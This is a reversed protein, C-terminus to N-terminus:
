RQWTIMGYVGRAVETSVATSQALESFEPHHSDLLNQGVLALEAYASPRWALRADMTIYAPVARSAVENPLQDVYRGIVDLDVNQTLDWSSRLYIQNRPTSHVIERITTPDSGFADLETFTYCGTLRWYDTMDTTGTLEIGMSQTSVNNAFRSPRFLRGGSVFPLENASGIIDDYDNYFAAVDWSFYDAPQARYGIEYAILSEASLRPNGLILVSTPPFPVTPTEVRMGDEVRTPNRVARSVAFWYAERESPLYLLRASPEAELNGFTNYELRGGAHLYWQEDILTIRDEVFLSAWQTSKEAPILQFITTGRITDQSLRYNAGYVVHNWDNWQFRAQFDMDYTYRDEALTSEHRQAADFYGQIQWETEEDVNRTWRYLVNGGQVHIDRGRNTAVGRVTESKGSIGDYIDGQITMTDDPTPTWDGRYGARAQRWDDFAGRPHFGTNRDFEKAYIRWHYNEGVNAGYRVTNFHREQDGGGSVILTGQTDEAKKTFINIVGNVGNSGWATTGPGRIVEIRDIDALVLDQVDWAVGGFLPSYVVRRDIQVLLKNGYDDNFGRASIAWRDSSIKAVELGPVMRLLEPISTAGSRRIMEQNIVFVAAPSRGVTSEQRSVSTVTTDFSPIVVDQNSLQELNLDLLSEGDDVVLDSDPIAGEVSEVSEQAPLYGCAILALAGIIVLRCCYPLNSTPM